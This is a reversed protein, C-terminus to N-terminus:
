QCDSLCFVSSFSSDLVDSVHSTALLAFFTVGKAKGANNCLATIVVENLCHQISRRGRIEPKIHLNPQLCVFCLVRDEEAVAVLCVLTRYFIRRVAVKGNEVIGVWFWAIKKGNKSAIELSYSISEGGFDAEATQAWNGLIVIKEYIKSM